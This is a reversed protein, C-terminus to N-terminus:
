PKALKYMVYQNLSVGNAKADELLAYHLTKPLRVSIRGSCERRAVVADLPVAGIDTEADIEALLTRDWEDPEVELITALKDELEEATLNRM